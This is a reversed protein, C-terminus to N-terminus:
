NLLNLNEHSNAKTDSRWLYAASVAILLEFSCIILIFLAWVQGLPESHMLFRDFTILNIIIASLMITISIIIGMASRRALVGFIGIAFLAATFSLYYFM